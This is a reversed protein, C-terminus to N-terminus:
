YEPCIVLVPVNASCARLDVLLRVRVPLTHHVEKVNM